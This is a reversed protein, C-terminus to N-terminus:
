SGVQTGALFSIISINYVLVHVLDSYRVINQDLRDRSCNLTQSCQQINFLYLSRMASTAMVLQRIVVATGPLNM